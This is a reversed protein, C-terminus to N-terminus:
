YLTEVMDSQPTLNDLSSTDNKEECGSINGTLVLILVQRTSSIRIIHEFYGYIKTAETLKETALDSHIIKSCDQEPELIRLTALSCSIQSLPRFLGKFRSFLETLLTQRSIWYCKTSHGHYCKWWSRASDNLLQDIM